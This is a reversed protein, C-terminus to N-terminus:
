IWGNIHQVKVNLILWPLHFMENPTINKFSQQGLVLVLFYLPCHLRHWARSFPYLNACCSQILLGRTKRRIPQFIKRFVARAISFSRHPKGKRPFHFFKYAVNITSDKRDRCYYHSLYPWSVNKFFSKKWNDNSITVFKARKGALDKGAPPVWRPGSRSIHLRGNITVSWKQIRKVSTEMERYGKTRCWIMQVLDDISVYPKTSTLPSTGTGTQSETATRRRREM